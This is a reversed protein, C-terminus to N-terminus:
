CDIHLIIVRGMHHQLLSFCRLMAAPVRPTFLAFTFRPHTFINRMCSNACTHMRGANVFPPSLNTFPTTFRTLHIFASLHHALVSTSPTSVSVLTLHNISFIILIVDCVLHDCYYHVTSVQRCLLPCLLSKEQIGKM